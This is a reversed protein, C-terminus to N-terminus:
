NRNRLLVLRLLQALSMALAAVYTVAAASLMKKAGSTEEPLIISLGELQAIATSSANFEVPLTIVQFFVASSFLLIGLDVLGTISLIIGAILLPWALNSAISVVPAIANRIRIPAYGQAHQIAHGAEHAAISVSAISSGSYVEQSLRMTRTKPDYHDSMKGATVEIPVDALGNGNLIRRAAEEGTIGKRNGVGAYKRYASSVKAQALFAFIIAPILIYFTPDM